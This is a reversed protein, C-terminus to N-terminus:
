QLRRHHLDRARSNSAHACLRSGLATEPAHRPGNPRRDLLRPEGSSFPSVSNSQRPRARSEHAPVSESARLAIKRRALLLTSTLWREVWPLRYIPFVLLPPPYPTIEPDTMVLQVMKALLTIACAALFATIAASGTKPLAPLGTRILVTAILVCAALLGLTFTLGPRKQAVDFHPSLRPAAVNDSFRLSGYHLALNLASIATFALLFAAFSAAFVGSWVAGADNRLDFLNGLLSSAGTLQSVPGFAALLLLTLLPVRIFFALRVGRGFAPWSM